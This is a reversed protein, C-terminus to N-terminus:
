GFPRVGILWGHLYFAFAAWVVLGAVVAKIDRAAAVAPYRVGAARDRARAAKFDFIAWALFAGFLLVDALTGNAILHALAWLKIGALMPHGVKARIHTGPIYAAAFLVFVPLTLLGALHRTWLPPQWLVIPDARALGYGWVILVVGAISFLSYLAKWRKEGLREIRRARWPEAVIRVSHSAFFVILGLVLVIM